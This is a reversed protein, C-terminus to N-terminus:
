AAETVRASGNASAWLGDIVGTYVPQPLEYYSAAAMQITHSTASATAGLKLYLIATSDNYVMAGKRSANTALVTVNTASSAVNSLAVSTAVAPTNQVAFTGANTVAHSPVSALSVPQTAQFFTGTVALSGNLKTWIASLWGRIGVGGAPMATPTTIDTGDLAIGSVTVPMPASATVDVAVGDATRLAPIIRQIKQATVAGGNLTTVEELSFRTLDPISSTPGGASTSVILDDAM